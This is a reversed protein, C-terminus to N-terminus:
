YQCVSELSSFLVILYRKFFQLIMIVVIKFINRTGFLKMAAFFYKIKSEQSM